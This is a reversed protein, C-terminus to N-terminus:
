GNAQLAPMQLDPRFDIILALGAQLPLVQDFIGLLHRRLNRREGWHFRSRRPQKGSPDDCNAVFGGSYPNIPM